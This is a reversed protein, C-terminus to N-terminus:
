RKEREGEAARAAFVGRVRDFFQRGTDTGDEYREWAEDWDALAERAEDRQKLIDRVDLYGGCDKCVFGM